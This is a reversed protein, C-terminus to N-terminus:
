KLEMALAEMQEWSLDNWKNTILQSYPNKKKLKIKM